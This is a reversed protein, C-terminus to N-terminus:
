QALAANLAILFNDPQSLARVLQQARALEKATLPEDFSAHYSQLSQELQSADTTALVDMAYAVVLNRPVVSGDLYARMLWLVADRHKQAAAQQILQVGELRMADGRDAYILKSGLEVKASLSGLQIAQRYAEFSEKQSGWKDLYRALNLQSKGTGDKAAERMRLTEQERDAGWQRRRALAEVQARGGASGAAAAKVWWQEAQLEDRAVGAGEDYADGLQVMATTSGSDAAKRLWKVSEVRGGRFQAILEVMRHYAMPSGQDVALQAWHFAQTEDVPVGLGASYIRVLLDYVEVDGGAAALRLWPLALDYRKSTFYMRGVTTMAPGHGSSAAKTLWREANVRDASGLEGSQLAAGLVTQLAPDGKEAGLRLWHLAIPADKPFGLQGTAYGVVLLGIVEKHGTLAAREMLALGKGFDMPLGVGCIRMLGEFGWKEADSPLAALRQEIKVEDLQTGAPISRQLEECSLKLEQAQAFCALFLFGVVGMKKWM